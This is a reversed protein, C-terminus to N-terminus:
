KDRRKERMEDVNQANWEEYREDYYDETHESVIRLPCGTHTVMFPQLTIKSDCLHGFGSGSWSVADSKEFHKDCLMSYYTSM